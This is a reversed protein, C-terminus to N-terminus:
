RERGLLLSVNSGGFAFSNSMCYTINKDYTQHEQLLNIAALNSDLESNMTNKPLKRDINLDSLLLWCLGCEIAGAAGLTHGTLAKTSSCSTTPLMQSVAIAEMQDNKITGTGHLNLYDVQEPSINARQLAQKIVGIAGEGDPHPASIHYADSSEGFGKVMIGTDTKRMIFLAAGEGINIGDRNVGFPDCTSSSISELASFGNITLKCLSDAGGVIVADVQEAHLLNFGSIIAKASSSCATSISYIPGLAGSLFAVFDAPAVMEQMSYNFDEPLQGTSSLQQLALEGSAVGSTSTGIVVGLRSPLCDLQEIADEIQKFASYILQNCRTRYHAPFDQLDNLETTVEGVMVTREPHLDDRKNLTNPHNAFLSNLVAPKNDGLACVLGLHTLSIM